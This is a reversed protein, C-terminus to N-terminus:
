QQINTKKNADPMGKMGPFDVAQPYDETNIKDRIMVCNYVLNEYPHLFGIHKNKVMKINAGRRPNDYPLEPEFRVENETLNELELSLFVWQTLDWFQNKPFLSISGQEGAKVSLEIGETSRKVDLNQTQYDNSTISSIDLLDQEQCDSKYALFVVVLFLFVKKHRLMIKM